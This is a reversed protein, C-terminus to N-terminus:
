QMHFSTLNYHSHDYLINPKYLFCMMYTTLVHFFSLTDKADYIELVIEGM